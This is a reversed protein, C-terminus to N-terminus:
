GRAERGRAATAAVAAIPALEEIAAIKVRDDDRRRLVQLRLDHAFDHGRPQVYQDLLRPRAAGILKGAELLEGCFAVHAHADAEIQAIVRGHAFRPPQDVLALDTRQEIDARAIPVASAEAVLTFPAGLPLPGSAALEDVLANMEDIERAPKEALE